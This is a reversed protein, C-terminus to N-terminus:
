MCMALTYVQIKELHTSVTFHITSVDNIIMGMMQRGLLHTSDTFHSNVIALLQDMAEQGRNKVWEGGLGM